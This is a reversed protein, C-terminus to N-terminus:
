DCRRDSMDLASPRAGGIESSVIFATHTSLPSPATVPVTWKSCSPLNKIRACVTVNNGNFNNGHNKTIITMINCLSWYDDEGFLFYFHIVRLPGTLTVPSSVPRLSPRCPKWMWWNPSLVLPHVLHRISNSSFMKTISGTAWYIQKLISNLLFRGLEDAKINGIKRTGPWVEVKVATLM